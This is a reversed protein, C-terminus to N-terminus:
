PHIIVKWNGTETALLDDVQLWAHNLTMLDKGPGWDSKQPAQSLRGHTPWTGKSSPCLQSRPRTRVWAGPKSCCPVKLVSGPLRQAEFAQRTPVAVVPQLASSMCWVASHCLCVLPSTSKFQWQVFRSNPWPNLTENDAGTGRHDRCYLYKRIYM